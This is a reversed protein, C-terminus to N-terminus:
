YTDFESILEPPQSSSGRSTREGPDTRKAGAPPRSMQCPQGRAALAEGLLGPAGGAPFWGDM